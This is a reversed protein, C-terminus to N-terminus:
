IWEWSPEEHMPDNHPTREGMLYPLFFVNSSANRYDIEGTIGDYDDSKLINEMWWKLSAAAALTVGMVHYKGNANCFSHLRNNEDVVFHPTNAYVM